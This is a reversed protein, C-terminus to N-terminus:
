RTWYWAPNLSGDSANTTRRAQQRVNLYSRLLVSEELIADEM